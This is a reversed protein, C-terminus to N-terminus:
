SRDVNIGNSAGQHIVRDGGRYFQVLARTKAAFPISQGGRRARYATVMRAVILRNALVRRRAERAPQLRMVPASWRVMSSPAPPAPPPSPAEDDLLVLAEEDPAAVDLLEELLVDADLLEDVLADDLLEEVLPVVDDPLVSGACSQTSVM